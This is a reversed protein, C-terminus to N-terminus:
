PAVGDEVDYDQRLKQKLAVLDIDLAELLRELFWQKHTDDALLGATALAIIKAKDNPMATIQAITM